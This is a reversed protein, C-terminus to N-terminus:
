LFKREPEFPSDLSIVIQISSVFAEMMEFGILQDIFSSCITMWQNLTQVSRPYSRWLPPQNDLISHASQLLPSHKLFTSNNLHSIMLHTNLLMSCAYLCTSRLLAYGYLHYWTHSCLAYFIYFLFISMYVLMSVHPDLWVVRPFFLDLCLFCPMFCLAHLDLWILMYPRLNLCLLHCLAYLM